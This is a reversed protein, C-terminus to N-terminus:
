RVVAVDLFKVEKKENKGRKRKLTIGTCLDLCASCNKFLM